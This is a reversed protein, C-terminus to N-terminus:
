HCKIISYSNFLKLGLYFRNQASSKIYESQDAQSPEDVRNVFELWIL